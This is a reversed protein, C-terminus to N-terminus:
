KEHLDAGRRKILYNKKNENTTNGYSYKLIASYIGETSNQLPNEEKEFLWVEEETDCLYPLENEVSFSVALFDVEVGNKISQALWEMQFRPVNKISLWDAIVPNYEYVRHFSTGYKLLNDQITKNTVDKEIQELTKYEKEYDLTNKSAFLSKLFKFM